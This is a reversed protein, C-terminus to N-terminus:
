KKMMSEIIEKDLDRGEGTSATTALGGLGM